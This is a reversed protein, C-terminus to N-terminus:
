KLMENGILIYKQFQSDKICSCEVLKDDKKEYNYYECNQLSNITKLKELCAIDIKAKLIADAEVKQHHSYVFFIIAALIIGGFVVISMFEESQLIRKLKKM